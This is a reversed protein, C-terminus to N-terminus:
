WPRISGDENRGMFRLLSILEAETWFENYKLAQAIIRSNERAAEGTLHMDTDAFDTPNSNVGLREDRLVTFGERTLQLALFAMQAQSLKHRLIVPIHILLRVDHAQCWQSLEHLFRLFECGPRLSYLRPPNYAPLPASADIERYLVEIWGSPHLITNSDYKFLPHHGALTKTLATNLTDSDGLYAMQAHKFTFPILGCSFLRSGLHLNALKMGSTTPPVAIDSVVQPCFLLTDGPRLYKTAIAANCRMGHGAAGGANVAPVGCEELMTAPEVGMRTESSGCIIYCAKGLERMKKEWQDSAEGARRFCSLEPSFFRDYIHTSLIGAVIAVALIIILRKM